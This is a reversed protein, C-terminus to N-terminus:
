YMQRGRATRPRNGQDYMDHEHMNNGSNDYYEGTMDDGYHMESQQQQQQQQPGGGHLNYQLQNYDNTNPEPMDLDLGVINDMKYRPNDDGLALKIRAFETIPRPQNAKASVPKDVSEIVEKINMPRLRWMDMEDDYYVRRQVREMEEQPVFHEMIVDKLQVHRTLERITELLEERTRQNEAQIDNIDRKIESYKNRLKDLKKNKIMLEKEQSEYEKQMELQVLEKEKLDREVMEHERRKREIEAKKQELILKQREGEDILRKGALIKNEMAKLKKKLNHKNQRKETLISEKSRIEDLLGEQKQEAQAKIAMISKKEEEMQKLMEAKKKKSAEQLEKLKEKQVGVFKQKTIVKHNNIVRRGKGGRAMPTLRNGMALASGSAGGGEENELQAKLRAIEDQFERLMADKPDENIMPKNKINKARNAFRLTSITEDYNYDAPGINAIMVTKTNGGLSDQLLRTLKSDRYPIHKAKPNVLSSIVNGLASLSLNIKTAEKLRVGQAGTKGQRESGALDVMNLKGVRIHNQGDAGVESREVTITFICHSRSSNANMKTAGVQRNQKGDDLLNMLEGSDKMVFSSLDKVYVGTDPNSKLELAKRTGDKRLLDIVQDNYIEIFSARVLFEVNESIQICGFIQDFARPIVGRSVEDHIDGGEMTFTKGTGTQGYAFITGNYGELM